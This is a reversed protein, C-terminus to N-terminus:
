LAGKELMSYAMETLVKGFDPAYKIGLLKESKSRSWNKMSGKKDENTGDAINSWGKNAFEKQLSKAM